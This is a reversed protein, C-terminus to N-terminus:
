IEGELSERDHQEIKELKELGERIGKIIEDPWRQSELVLLLLKVFESGFWICPKKCRKQEPTYVSVCGESNIGVSFFVKKGFPDRKPM